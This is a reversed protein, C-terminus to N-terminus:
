LLLLIISPLMLLIHLAGSEVKLWRRPRGQHLLLGRTVKLLCITKEAIILPGTVFKFLGVFERVLRTRTGLVLLSWGRGGLLLALVIDELLGSRAGAIAHDEWLILRVVAYRAQAPGGQLIM